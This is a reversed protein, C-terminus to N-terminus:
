ICLFDVVFQIELDSSTYYESRQFLLSNKISM